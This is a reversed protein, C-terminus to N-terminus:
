AAKALELAAKVAPAPLAVVEGSPRHDPVLLRSVLVVVGMALYTTVMAVPAFVFAAGLALRLWLPDFGWDAGIRHCIGLLNDPAHTSNTM